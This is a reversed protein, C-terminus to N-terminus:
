LVAYTGLWKREEALLGSGKLTYVLTHAPDVLPQAMSVGFAVVWAAVFGTLNWWAWYLDPQGIWLYVNLGVGALVGAIVGNGTIRPSLIGLAFAALIPGYFASGIMNISEIITDSINGVFIAFLMLMAGWGVTTLKSFLLHKKREITRGREVFDRMTAASLSNITSDMSSMAAALIASFIVARWGEPIHLLLLKPILYDLKDAPVAAQLEPSHQFLAGAAIGLLIYSAVLPFRAFGNFIICLKADKMSRAALERQVQTQDTGYYSAYLFIGGLLCPWFPVSSDGSFDLAQWREAPLSAIMADLGGVESIVVGICIYLGALLIVMQVVDSYVVATMGGLTDYITVTIGMMLITVVISLDLSASIIIAVAYLGIGGGLGRSLLFVGSIFKRVRADFRMELYEYVSVLELRRFMPVFISAVLIMAIPVALEWQLWQIGGNPKMAVFAPISIFSIASSQTAMTSIGITWWSLKRGSVYYDEHSEQRKSLYYGLAVMALMYFAVISWDIITM